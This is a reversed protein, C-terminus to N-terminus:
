PIVRKRLYDKEDSTLPLEYGGREPYLRYEFITEVRAKNDDDLSPILSFNITGSGCHAAWIFEALRQSVGSDAKVVDILVDLAERVQEKKVTDAAAMLKLADPNNAIYQEYMSRRDDASLINLSPMIQNVEEETKGSDHLLQALKAGTELAAECAEDFERTENQNTM